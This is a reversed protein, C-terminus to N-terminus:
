RARVFTASLVSAYFVPHENSRGDAHPVGVGARFAIGRWSWTMDIAAGHADLDNAHLASVHGTVSLSDRLLFQLDGTATVARDLRLEAYRFGYLPRLDGAPWSGGALFASVRNLSRGTLVSAREGAIFRGM